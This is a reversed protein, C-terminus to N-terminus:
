GLTDLLEQMRTIEITQDADTDRAFRDTAPELGGGDERLDAVMTLAGQHHAIMLDLFLRDFAAGRAEELAELQEATAIGPMEGHAEHDTDEAPVDEGRDTRWQEMQAIETAHTETIREALVPLDDRRTRDDVLATMALAQQHHVIMDQMFATDAATHEPAEVAAAEDDTLERSAEGPAGPQVTRPRDGSGGSGGSGGGLGAVAVGVAVIPVVVALVIRGM